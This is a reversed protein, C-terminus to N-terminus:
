STKKKKAKEAFSKAELLEDVAAESDDPVLTINPPVIAAQIGIWRGKPDQVIQAPGEVGYANIIAAIQVDIVQRQGQLDHLNLADEVSFMKPESM